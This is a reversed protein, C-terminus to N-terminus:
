EEPEADEEPALEPSYKAFIRETFLSVLLMAVAPVFVVPWWWAACLVAAQATLLVVVVTSPLHVVTLQFATRFLDKVQHDFRGLLPFLWCLVGAPLMLVFYQAVYLIYLLGGVRTGYWRAIHHVALLLAAAPILLLTAKVGTKFNDRFSRLYYGFAGSERRRVCRVVTYYLAATAPGITVVPLCLFIWLISLGCVDVLTSLWAWIGKEPNFFEGM